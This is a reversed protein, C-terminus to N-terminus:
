GVYDAEGCAKPTRGFMIMLHIGLFDVTFFRGYGEGREDVRTIGSVGWDYWPEVARIARRFKSEAVTAPM